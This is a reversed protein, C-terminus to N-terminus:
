FAKGEYAEIVKNNYTFYIRRGRKFDIIPHEVIRYDEM